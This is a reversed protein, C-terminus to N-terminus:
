PQVEINFHAIHESVAANIIDLRQQVVAYAAPHYQKLYSAVGHEWYASCTMCDPAGDLMAYFRPIPLGNSRLYHMVAADSWDEIPYLFEIGELVAGSRLPGKIADDNKQGRIILTAGDAIVRAHMPLMISRACCDNRDQIAPALSSAARLGMPTRSTPVIDSPIGFQAIVQPQNGAIEVFHPVEARVREMTELTEPFPAGTNLWYVTVRDWWPRLLYLCALSDRGGSVQLAIKEHRGFAAEILEKMPADM